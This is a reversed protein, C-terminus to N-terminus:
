PSIVHSDAFGPGYVVANHFLRITGQSAGRFAPASAFLIIQGRGRRETTAYAANAIRHAAEPWLLGSMRLRLEYGTPVPAWGVWASEEEVEATRPLQMIAGLRVAARAGEDVMLIPNNGFLIPMHKRAGFTLWSRDDVRAAVFAGQPMFLSQWEDLAQLADEGTVPPELEALPQTIETTPSHAWVDDPKIRENRGTWERHLTLRYSDMDEFTDSLVKVSSLGSSSQAIRGASRGSAILTGGSEVWNKLHELARDNLASRWSEPLVIVNYRRLDAFGFDDIDLLTTRVGLRQDITHWLSGADTPSVAGRTLIAIRPQNLLRFHDGGMDPADGGAQGSNLGMAVVGVDTCVFRVAEELDGEFGINDDRAIVVSGRPYAFGDLHTDRDIVRAKVGRDLLRATAIVSRDDAGHIIYGVTSGPNEIANMSQEAPEYLEVNDPLGSLSQFAEVDMMMTLNWATTDYLRSRGERLLERREEQLFETTMRPDFELLTRTLPGEPQAAAIVVTGDQFSRREVAQGFQDQLNEAVFGRTAVHMEVGQLALLDLLQQRRSENESPPIFYVRDPDHEGGIVNHKRERYFQDLLMERHEELTKLNALSSVVQHHVAERYTMVRGEPRAVGDEALGAQEYLIGVAGRFSAWADSYGPYWNENWEGSYYRWGFADFAQAQDKAFENNWAQRRVPHYPNNPARPPSFLYTDQPGMEHADVFLLPRWEGVVKIRGRTEPHVGFIWDRNLDFMYHNGRGAPWYGDHLLSQDDVNPNAGRHEAIQQLFRDRGDPNMMPDIFVLVEDLMDTVAADTSAILHYAVAVAADSGSTEDGHISYAMWAIAPLSEILSEADADSLGRPDALRAMDDKIEDLRDINAPSSIAMYYLPRGEHSTAYQFLRVRDSEEAWTQFCSEIQGHRAARAGVDFGLMEAPPTIADDHHSGDFFDADYRLDPIVDPVLEARSEPSPGAQAPQGAACSACALAILSTLLAYMRHPM